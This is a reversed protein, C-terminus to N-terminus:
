KTYIELIKDIEKAEKMQKIVTNFQTKFDTIYPYGEYKRTFGLYGFNNKVVIGREVAPFKGTDIFTDNLYFDIRGASLKKLNMENNNAEELGILGAQIASAFRYGAMSTPNFGRNMGFISNYFDDPWKTKGALKEAKGFVVVQEEIIPESFSMWLTREDSYYPPFLAIVSGNKVSNIGRKWPKMKITVEYDTMKSFARQLIDVYVGKPVNNELYSYPPYGSDGYVVVQQKPGAICFSTINLILLHFLLCLILTRRAM